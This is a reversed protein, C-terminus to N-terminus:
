VLLKNLLRQTAAKDWFLTRLDLCTCCCKQSEIIINTCIIFILNSTIAIKIRLEHFNDRRNITARTILGDPKVTDGFHCKLRCEISWLLNHSGLVISYPLLWRVHGGCVRSWITRHGNHPLCGHKNQYFFHVTCFYSFNWLAFESEANYFLYWLQVM